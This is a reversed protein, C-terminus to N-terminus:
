AFSPKCYEGVLGRLLDDSIASGRDDYLAAVVVKVAHRVILPIEDDPWSGEGERPREMFAFLKETAAGILATLLEDSAENAGVRLWARAAAPDIIDAM